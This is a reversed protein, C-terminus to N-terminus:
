AFVQVAIPDSTSFAPIDMAQVRLIDLPNALVAVQAQLSSVQMQVFDIIAQLTQISPVSVGAATTEKWVAAGFTNDLCVYEKDATTDFWRSGVIYGDASDENITPAVAASLNDLVVSLNAGNTAQNVHGPGTASLNANTGGRALPVTGGNFVGSANLQGGGGSGSHDHTLNSLNPNIADSIVGSADRSIIRLVNAPVTKIAALPIDQVTNDDGDITAGTVIGTDGILVTSNQILKGTTSDFRAIANDTASAPGVVDGSGGGSSGASVWPRCDVMDTEFGAGTQGNELKVGCLPIKGSLAIAALGDLTLEEKTSFESGYVVSFAETSLELLVKAWYWKGATAPATLALTDTQAVYHHTGSDIYWGDKVKVSLGSTNWRVQFTLLRKSNIFDENGYGIEHTHPGAFMPAPNGGSFAIIRAPDAGWIVYQGSRRDKEVQVPMGGIKPVGMNLAIHVTAAAGNKMVIYTFGPRGNVDFQYQGDGLPRGLTSYQEQPNAIAQIQQQTRNMM